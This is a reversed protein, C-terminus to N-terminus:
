VVSKTIKNKNLDIFTNINKTIINKNTNIINENTNIINENIDTANENIDIANENNNLTNINKVIKPLYNNIIEKIDSSYLNNNIINLLLQNDLKKKEFELKKEELDLKQKELLQLPTLFYIETVYKKVIKLLQNYTFDKTLLVIENPNHGNIAKHYLNKKILEDNLINQENERFNECEYIELFICNGYQLKLQGKRNVIDKSSGIKIFKNEVIEAIYVCRKGSMKELLASEKNLKLQHLHNQKNLELEKVHNETNIKLQNRLEDTEENLTEHILDELKIYYDHIENAKKTGAKLCFKKFSNITLLIQENPRGSNLNEVSQHSVIKYDIDLIFYKELLRKAPDKRSFDLWKWINDLDIIYDNKSYNFYCYFSTVFLQQQLDNFNNKIKNILKNQYTNSLRTIPNKEILKIIDLEKNM